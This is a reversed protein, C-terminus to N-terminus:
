STGPSSLWAVVPRPPETPSCPSSRHGPDFTLTSTGLFSPFFRPFHMPFDSSSPQLFFWPFHHNFRNFRPNGHSKQSIEHSIHHIKLPNSPVDSCRCSVEVNKAQTIMAPNGTFHKLGMCFVLLNYLSKSM